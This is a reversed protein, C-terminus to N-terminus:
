QPKGDCASWQKAFLWDQSSVTGHEARGRKERRSYVVVVRCLQLAQANNKSPERGSRSGRNRMYSGPVDRIM